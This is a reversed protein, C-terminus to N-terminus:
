EHPEGYMSLRIDFLVVDGHVWPLDNPQHKGPEHQMVNNRYIDTAKQNRPLGTLGGVEDVYMERYSGEWYVTVREPHNDRGIVARMILAAAVHVKKPDPDLDFDGKEVKGNAYIVEYHCKKMETM